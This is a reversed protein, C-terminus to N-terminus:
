HGYTYTVSATIAVEPPDLVRTGFSDRDYTVRLTIQDKVEEPGDTHNVSFSLCGREGGSIYQRMNTELINTYNNETEVELKYLIDRDFNNFVYVNFRTPRRTIFCHPNHPDCTGESAVGFKDKYAASDCCDKRSCDDPMIFNFQNPLPMM